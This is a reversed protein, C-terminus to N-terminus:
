YTYGYIINNIYQAICTCSVMGFATIKGTHMKKGLSVLCNSGMQRCEELGKLETGAHVSVTGDDDELWYYHFYQMFMLSVM